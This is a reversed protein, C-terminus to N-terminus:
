YGKEHVYKFQKNNKKREFEDQEEKSAFFTSERADVSYTLSFYDQITIANKSFILMGVSIFWTIGLFIALVVNFFLGVFCRLVMRKYKVNYGNQDVLRIGCVFKGITLGKKMILPIVLNYFLYAIFIAIIIAILRLVIMNFSYSNLDYNENLINAAKNLEKNYFNTLATKDESDKEVWGNEQSYNFLGSDNKANEYEKLYNEGNELEVYFKTINEDFGETILEYNSDTGKKYLHSDLKIEVIKNEYYDIKTTKSFIPTVIFSFFMSFLTITIFLDILYAWFRSMLRAKYLYPNM